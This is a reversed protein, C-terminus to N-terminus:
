LGTSFILSRSRMQCCVGAPFNCIHSQILVRVFNYKESSDMCPSLFFYTVEMQDGAIYRYGSRDCHLRQMTTRLTNKVKPVQCLLLFVIGRQSKIQRFTKITKM